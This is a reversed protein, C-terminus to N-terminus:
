CKWAGQVTVSRGTDSLLRAEVTGSKGDRGVTITVPAGLGSSFYTNPNRSGDDLAVRIDRTERGGYSGPGKYSDISLSLTWATANVTGVLTAVAKGTRVNMVCKVTRTTTWSGIVAGNLVLPRDSRSAAGTVLLLVSSWISIVGQM